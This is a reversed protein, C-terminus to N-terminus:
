SNTILQDLQQKTEMVDSFRFRSTSTAGIVRLTKTVVDQRRARTSRLMNEWLADWDRRSEVLRRFFVDEPVGRAQKQIFETWEPNSRWLGRILLVEDKQKKHFDQQRKERLRTFLDRAGANLLMANIHKQREGDERQLAQSPPTKKRITRDDPHIRIYRRYDVRYRLNAPVMRLFSLRTSELRAEMEPRPMFTHRDFEIRGFYDVAPIRPIACTYFDYHGSLTESAPTYNEIPLKKQVAAYLTLGLMWLDNKMSAYVNTHPAGAMRLAAMEPSYYPTTGAIPCEYRCALGFDVLKIGGVPLTQILINDPKIDQHAIDRAHLYEIADVLNPLERALISLDHRRTMYFLRLTVWGFGTTLAEMTFKEVPSSQYHHVTVINDHRLRSLINYQHQIHRGRKQVVRKGSADTTQWVQGFGGKAIFTPSSM